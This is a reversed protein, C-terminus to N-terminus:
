IEINSLNDHIDTKSYKKKCASRVKSYLFLSPILEIALRTTYSINYTQVMNSVVASTDFRLRRLKISVSNHWGTLDPQFKGLFVRNGDFFSELMHVGFLILEEGLTNFQIRDKKIKLIMYIHNIKDISDNENLAEIDDVSEGEEQLMLKLLTIQELLMSKKNKIDETYIDHVYETNPKIDHLVNSFVDHKVQENPKNNKSVNSYNDDNNARNFFRQQLSPYDNRIESKIDNNVELIKNNNENDIKKNVNDIKIDIPKNDLVDSINDIDIGIEAAIEKINKNYLEKKYDTTYNSQSSINSLLDLEATKLNINKNIFEKNVLNGLGLLNSSSNTNTIKQEM